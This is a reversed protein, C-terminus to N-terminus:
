NLGHQGGILPPQRGLALLKERALDTIVQAAWDASGAHRHIMSEWVLAEMDNLEEVTEPEHRRTM